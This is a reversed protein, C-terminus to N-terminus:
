TLPSKWEEPFLVDWTTCLDEFAEEWAEVEKEEDHIAQLESILRLNAGKGLFFQEVITLNTRVVLKYSGIILGEMKSDYASDPILAGAFCKVGNEGRYVCSDSTYDYAQQKQRRAHAIVFHIVQENNTYDLEELTM